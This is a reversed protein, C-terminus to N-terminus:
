PLDFQAVCEIHPTQPFMDVPRVRVLKYGAEVLQAANPALTTPNCSIYVIRKAECEIVRRVIKASLGARPPDITIVDPKGAQEILPRLGTRANAAVFDANRINNAIANRKANAIADQVIELGWVHGAQGAMSLGITGVGCYLDFLKESGTLGAYGAAVGYLKEAMETNTQFFSDHSLQINLDFIRERLVEEGLVGTPGSTNGSPGDIVTHLDVPPKPFNAVSTVLRTQVQGTRRGERVVLNRLVGRHDHPDYASLGEQKAWELVDNKAKNTAESSLRCDEIDLVQDWRGRPHFGLVLQGEQEGFSYEVKNRYRWQELAPIIPDLEFGELRGIRSLSDGVQEEKFALQREYEMAQWPAGPCAEGQHVDTEEIREASPELIEVTNAEAYGKKSKSVRARVTDGPLAGGVFVVYGDRRAIGRGGYALTEIKAEFEEGRRLRGSSRAPGGGAPEAEATPDTGTSETATM